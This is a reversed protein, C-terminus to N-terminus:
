NRAPALYKERSWLMWVPETTCGAKYEAPLLLEKEQLYLPQSM